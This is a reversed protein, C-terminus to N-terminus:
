LWVCSVVCVRVKFALQAWDPLKAIPVLSEEGGTPAKPAPVHVEEYGKKAERTTGVPMVKRVGATMSGLYAAFGTGGSPAVGPTHGKQLGLSRETALYDADFGADQLPDEGRRRRRRENKRAAKEAALEAGTKITVQSGLAAPAAGSGASAGGGGGAPAAAAKRVASVKIRRLAAVHQLLLLMFEFADNGLLDNLTQQLEHERRKQLISLIEIALDVPQFPCGPSAAIHQECRVMLWRADIADAASSLTSHVSAASSTISGGRSAGATGSHQTHSM